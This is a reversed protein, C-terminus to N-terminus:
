RSAGSATRGDIRDAQVVEGNEVSVQYRGMAPGRNCQRELVFGYKAPERWPPASAASVESPAASPGAAPESPGSTCAGVLALLAAACLALRLRM